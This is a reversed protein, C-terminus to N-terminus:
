ILIIAFVSLSLIDHCLLLCFDYSWKYTVRSTKKNVLFQSLSITVLTLFRFSLTLIELPPYM